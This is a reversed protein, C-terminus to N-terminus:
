WGTIVGKRGGWGKSVSIALDEARDEAKESRRRGQPRVGQERPVPKQRIKDSVMCWGRWTWNQSARGQLAGLRSPATLWALARGPKRAKTRATRETQFGLWMASWGVWGELNKAFTM